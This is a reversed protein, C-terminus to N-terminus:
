IRFDVPYFDRYEKEKITSNSIFIWDGNKYLHNGM